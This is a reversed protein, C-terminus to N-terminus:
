VNKERVPLLGSDKRGEAHAIKKKRVALLVAPGDGWFVFPRGKGFARRRKLTKEGVELPRWVDRTAKEKGQKM